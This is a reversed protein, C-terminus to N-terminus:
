LGLYKRLGWIVGKGSGRGRGRDLFFGLSEPARVSVYEKKCFGQRTSRAPIGPFDFNQPRPSIDCFGYIEIVFVIVVM